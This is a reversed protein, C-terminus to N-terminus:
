GSDPGVNASIINGIGRFTNGFITGLDKLILRATDFKKALKGTKEDVILTEKWTKTLTVLWKGFEDILPKAANLLILFVTYLNAAADGLNLLFDNNTKWISELRKINESETITKSINIAIKGLVDGTETLLPKLKPFLNDVLNQIATELQPFLKEGAAAKLAKFEDKLSVIYKVFNQAEVSLDSLADAYATAASREEDFNARAKEAEDRAETAEDIANKNDLITETLNSLADKRDRDARLVEKQNRAQTELDPGLAANEAEKKKLDNNADIARRYNLDAEAFALEAEKRARSNPPLDSVRALAERAKELDLAAKQENLAADESDFALQQLEERAKALSETYAENADTLDRRALAESKAADKYTKALAKQAKELAKDLREKAKADAISPKTAKNGAQIAKAVGSFALRATIAAQGLATFAGALTVVAPLAAAGIVSVLSTLGTIVVGIAGSVATIAPALFYGLRTLSQFRARAADAQALFNPTFLQFGRQNGRNFGRKFGQSVRDGAREGERDVGDFAKRIDREVNSTIARVVVYADGVINAAM